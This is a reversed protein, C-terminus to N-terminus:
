ADEVNPDEVNISPSPHLFNLIEEQFINNTLGWAPYNDKHSQRNFREACEIIKRAHQLENEVDVGAYRCDCTPSGRRSDCDKFHFGDSMEEGEREV